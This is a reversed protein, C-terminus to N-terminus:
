DGQKARTIEGSIADVRVDAKGSDTQIEFKYILRGQEYEREMKTIKGNVKDTAIKMADVVPIFKQNSPTAPVSNSESTEAKFSTEGNQTDTEVSEIVKGSAPVAAQDAVLNKEDADNSATVAYAGGLGVCVAIIGGIVKNRL